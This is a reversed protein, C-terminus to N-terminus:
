VLERSRQHNNRGQHKPCATALGIGHHVHRPVL